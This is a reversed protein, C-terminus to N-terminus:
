GFSKKEDVGELMLIFQENLIQSIFKKIVQTLDIEGRSHDPFLAGAFVSRKIKISNQLEWIHLDLYALVKYDALKKINEKTPRKDKQEVGLVKRYAPIFERMQDMIEPDPLSLDVVIFAKDPMFREGDEDPNQKRYEDFPAMMYLDVSEEAKAKEEETNKDTISARVARNLEEGAMGIIFASAPYVGGHTDIDSYAKYKSKEYERAFMPDEPPKEMIAIGSSRIEDLLSEQSFGYWEWDDLKIRGHEELAEIFNLRYTLQSAWEPGTLEKCKDFNKINFWAPLTTTFKPSDM